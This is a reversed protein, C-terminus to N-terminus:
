ATEAGFMVGQSLRKAASECYREEIEIGIARRGVEACAILISGSGCFPDLVSGPVFTIAWRAITLPKETPHTGTWDQGHNRNWPSRKILIKRQESTAALEADGFLDGGYRCKDWVLWGCDSYDCRSNNAGWVVFPVTPREMSWSDDNQLSTRGITKRPQRYQIGYPPDTVVSDFSLKPIIGRCDGCYITIGAHDYYPKM